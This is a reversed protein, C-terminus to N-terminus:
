LEYYGGMRGPNSKLASEAAEPSLFVTKGINYAEVGNLNSYIGDILTWYLFEVGNKGIGIEKIEYISIIGRDSRPEYVMDGVKCPLVVLRKDVDAKALEALRELTIDSKPIDDQSLIGASMMDGFTLISM